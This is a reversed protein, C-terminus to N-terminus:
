EELHELDDEMVDFVWDKDSVNTNDNEILYAIKGDGLSLTDVITGTHGSSKVRVREYEKFKSSKM